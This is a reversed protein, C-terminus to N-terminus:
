SANVITEKLIRKGLQDIETPDLVVPRTIGSLMSKTDQYFGSRLVKQSAMLFYSVNWKRDRSMRLFNFIQNLQIMCEQTQKPTKSDTDSFYNKLFKQSTGPLSSEFVVNPRGDTLYVLQVDYNNDKYNEQVHKIATHTAHVLRTKGKAEANLLYDEFKKNDSIVYPVKTVPVIHMKFSDFERRKRRNLLKFYYFLGLSTLLAGDLRTLGGKFVSKGMSESMDVIFYVLSLRDKDVVRIDENKIETPPIQGERAIAARYTHKRHLRGRPRAMINDVPWLSVQRMLLNGLVSGIVDLVDSRSVRKQRGFQDKIEIDTITNLQNLISKASPLDGYEEGMLQLHKQIFSLIDENTLLQDLNVLELAEPLTRDIMFQYVKLKEVLEVERESELITTLLKAQISLVAARANAALSLITGERSARGLHPNRWKQLLDAADSFELIFETSGYDVLPDPFHATTIEKIRHPM